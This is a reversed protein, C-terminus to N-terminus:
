WKKKDLASSIKLFGVVRNNMSFVFGFKYGFGFNKYVM